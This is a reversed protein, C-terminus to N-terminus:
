KTWLIVILYWYYMNLLLSVAGISGVTVMVIQRQKGLLLSEELRKQEDFFTERQSM